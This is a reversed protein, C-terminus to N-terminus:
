YNEIREEITAKKNKDKFQNSQESIAKGITGDDYIFGALSYNNKGILTSWPM